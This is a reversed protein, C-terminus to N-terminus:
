PRPNEQLRSRLRKFHTAKRKSRIISTTTGFIMASLFAGTFAGSALMAARYFYAERPMSRIRLGQQFVEDAVFILGFIAVSTAFASCWILWSVMTKLHPMTLTVCFGGVSGLVVGLLGLSWTPVSTEYEFILDIVMFPLFTTFLTLMMVLIFRLMAMAFRLSENFHIANRGRRTPRSRGCRPCTVLRFGLGQPATSRVRCLDLGCEHCPQTIPM